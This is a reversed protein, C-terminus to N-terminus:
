KKNEDVGRQGSGDVGIIIVAFMDIRQVIIYRQVRLQNQLLNM